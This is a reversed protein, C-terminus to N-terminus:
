AAPIAPRGSAQTSRRRLYLKGPAKRLGFLDIDIRQNNVPAPGYRHVGHDDPFAGARSSPKAEKTV